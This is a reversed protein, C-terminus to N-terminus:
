SRIRNETEFAAVFDLNFGPRTRGWWDRFHTSGYAGRFGYSQLASADVAGTRVQLFVNELNRFIAMLTMEVRTVDVRDLEEDAMFAMTAAVLERDASVALLYDRSGSALDNLATAKVALTNQRLELGVFLLSVVVGVATLTERIGKSTM